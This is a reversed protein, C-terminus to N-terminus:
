RHELLWGARDTRRRMFWPPLMRRRIVLLPCLGPYRAVEEALGEDATAFALDVGAAAATERALAIGELIVGADTEEMLHTNSIVGTVPVRSSSEIDAKMKLCGAVDSTFPRRANVVQLLDYPRATIAASLSSLVRAGVDDGGVDLITLGDPAEIAGKVEPLLIPLDASHYEGKPYIVAIGRDEMEQRAERCRFYPNVIDLDVIRVSDKGALALALNVAVETKGSGYNGVIAILRRRPSYRLSEDMDQGSHPRRRTAPNYGGAPTKGGGSVVTVGRRRAAQM